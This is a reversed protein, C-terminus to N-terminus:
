AAQAELAHRAEEVADVMELWEQRTLCFTGNFSMAVHTKHERTMTTFWEGGKTIGDGLSVIILALTGRLGAKRIEVQPNGRKTGVLKARWREADEESMNPIYVGPPAGDASLSKWEDVPMAKKPKDWTLISM